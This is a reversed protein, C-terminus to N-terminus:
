SWNERNIAYWGQKNFDASSPEVETLQGLDVNIGADERVVANWREGDWEVATALAAYVIQGPDDGETAQLAMARAVVVRNGTESLVVYGFTESSLDAGESYGLEEVIEANGEAQKAANEAPPEGTWDDPYYATAASLLDDQSTTTMAEYSAVTWAVAGLTTGPFGVEHGEVQETRAPLASVRAPPVSWGEYPPVISERQAAPESDESTVAAETTPSRGGTGGPAPDAETTGGSRGLQYAVAVVAVVALAVVAAIAVARSRRAGGVKVKTM